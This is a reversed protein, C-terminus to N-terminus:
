HRVLERVTEQAGAVAAAAAQARAGFVPVGQRRVVWVDDIVRGLTGSLQEWRLHTANCVSLRAYSYDATQGPRPAYGAQFACWPAGCAGLPPSADGLLMEPNGAAGNTIHVTAPPDTYADPGPFPVERFVPWHRAYAHVHGFMAVDVGHAYMLEEVSLLPAAKAAGGLPACQHGNTASCQMMTGTRSAEHEGDCRGDPGTAICYMPRHGMIIVWPVKDRNADAAALDAALWAHQRQAHEYGFQKPWFYVETNYSVLHVPGIDVSWYLSQSARAAAGPQGAFRNRYASFNAAAEHNGTCPAGLTLRSRLRPVARLLVGPSVLYPLTATLPQMSQLFRDGRRGGDSHMDYAM